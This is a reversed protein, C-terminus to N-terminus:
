KPSADKWVIMQVPVSLRALNVLLSFVFVFYCLVFLPWLFCYLVSEFFGLSLFHVSLAQSLQRKCCRALFHLPEIKEVRLGCPARTSSGVHNSLKFWKVVDESKKILLASM